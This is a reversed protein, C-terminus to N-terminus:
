IKIEESYTFHQTSIANHVGRKIHLHGLIHATSKQTVRYLNWLTIQFSKDLSNTEVVRDM